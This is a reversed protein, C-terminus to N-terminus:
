KKIKINEYSIIELGRNYYCKGNFTTYTIINILDDYSLKDYNTNTLNENKYHYLSVDLKSKDRILSKIFRIICKRKKFTMSFPYYEIDDDDKNRKSGYLYFQKNNKDYLVIFEFVEDIKHNIENCHFLFQNSQIINGM